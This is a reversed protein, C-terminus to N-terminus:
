LQQPVGLHVIRVPVLLLLGLLLLLPPLNVVELHLAVLLDFGLLRALATLDFESVVVFLSNM